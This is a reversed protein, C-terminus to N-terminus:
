KIATVKFIKLYKYNQKVGIGRIREQSANSNGGNNTKGSKIIFMACREIGFEIGINIYIYLHTSKKYTDSDGMRKWDKEFLKIDDLYMPDNRLNTAGHASGLYTLSQWWDKKCFNKRWRNIASQMKKIYEKIVKIIKNSIKYMKQCVIWSKPIMSYATRYDIM